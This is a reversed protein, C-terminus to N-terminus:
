ADNLAVRLLTFGSAYVARLTEQLRPLTMRDGINVPLYNFVAGDTIRGLGEIRIDRVTFGDEQALAPVAHLALTCLVACLSRRIATTTMM